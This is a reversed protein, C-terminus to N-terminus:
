ITFQIIIETLTAINAPKFIVKKIGAKLCRKETDEEALATLAVIPTKKNRELALIQAALHIGNIDPLGIDTIILDYENKQVLELAQQGNAATDPRCGIEKLLMTTVMRVIEDDEVLLIKKSKIRCFTTEDTTKANKSTTTM